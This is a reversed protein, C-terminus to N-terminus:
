RRVRLALLGILPLLALAVAYPALPTRGTVTGAGAEPGSGLFARAASSAGRADHVLRAGTSTLARVAAPATAQPRFDPDPTGNASWFRDSSSGVRWVVLGIPPARRLAAAVGADDFRRSEGDTLLIVVRRSANPPFFNGPGINRLANFTTAVINRGRPPPEDAALGRTVVATFVREDPSPLLLPLVRDTISAVGAPVAALLDRTALAGRRAQQLRTPAAPSAKAEMSRSVDIVFLAAADTRVRRETAHELVPQAAALGLLAALAAIAAGALLERGGGGHPLRLRRRVLAARRRGLALAALPVVGALGVLSDRPTLFVVDLAM